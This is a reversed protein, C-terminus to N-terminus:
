TSSKTGLSNASLAVPRLTNVRKGLILRGVIHARSREEVRIGPNAFNQGLAAPREDEMTSCKRRADQAAM